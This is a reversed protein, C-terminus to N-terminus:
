GSPCFSPAVVCGRPARRASSRAASCTCCGSPPAAAAPLVGGGVVVILGGADDSCGAAASPGVGDMAVWSCDPSTVDGVDVGVGGGPGEGGRAAMVPLSCCGLLRWLSASVMAWSLLIRSSSSLCGVRGGPGALGGGGGCTNGPVLCGCCWAVGAAGGPASCRIGVVVVVLLARAACASSCCVALICDALLEVATLRGGGTTMVVPCGGGGGRTLGGDAALSSGEGWGRRGGPSSITTRPVLGSGFVGRM